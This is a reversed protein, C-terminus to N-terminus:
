RLRALHLCRLRAPDLLCRRTSPLFLACQSVTNSVANTQNFGKKEVRFRSNIRISTSVPSGTLWKGPLRLGDPKTIALIFFLHFPLSPQQQDATVKRIVVRAMDLLVFQHSDSQVLNGGVVHSPIVDVLPIRRRNVSEIIDVNRIINM